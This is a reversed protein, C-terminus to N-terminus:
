SASGSDIQSNYIERYIQNNEFLENHKGIGSIEGDELIIIKDADMVSSIRQAIIIKTTDKNDNKLSTRIRRDTEMDVASLSDDFIIVPAKKALARAISIRQKQGGSFNVGKQNIDTDYREPLQEIFDKICATGASDMMLQELKSHESKRYQFLINEKITGSFLVTQQPVIATINRLKKIEINKINIGDILIEGCDIDYFRPILSALSTKGSGTAGLVAATEGAKINFSINNLVKDGKHTYSFSVNRFEINGKVQDPFICNEYEKIDPETNLVEQIRESSAQARSFRILIHSLMMLSFLLQRLYNIFAMLAGIKLAGFNILEAGFWLAAIISGNLLILMLPISFAATRSANVSADTLDTNARSFKEEEYKERVFAKVLRKGALNEQLRTNLFDLKSQVEYFLPYSKKIIVTIIIVLVPVFIVFLVSLQRSIIIAM